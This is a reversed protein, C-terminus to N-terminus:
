RLPDRMLFNMVALYSLVRGGDTTHRMATGEWPYKLGARALRKDTAWPKVDAPRATRHTAYPLTNQAATIQARTLDADKGKSGGGNGTVFGETFLWSTDTDSHTSRVYHLLFDHLQPYSFQFWERQIRSDSWAVNREPLRVLCVGTTKGPDLGILLIGSM